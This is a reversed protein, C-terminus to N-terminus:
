FPCEKELEIMHEWIEQKIIEFELSEELGYQLIKRIMLNSAEARSTAAYDIEVRMKWVKSLGVDAYTFWSRYHRLQSTPELPEVSEPDM